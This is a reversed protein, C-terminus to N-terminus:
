LSALTKRDAKLVSKPLPAFDLSAGYAQGPGIAYEVFKTLEAKVTTNKPVICYTFTSIPYAIKFVKAPAVIHLENNAPVKVVTKAADEINKINPYEFKHDNNEVAAANLQHSLLYSAAVYGLSGNTEQLVSVVGSNGKAGVGAPFNVLTATNVKIAWEHSVDSLFNTFAYTDGSGEIRYIPTIKLNPMHEKPNLKAIAPSNWTTIKGLYIEALVPGSLRLNRVGEIHFGIGTATLGWPIQVCENCGAAQTSTLPADSAGFDVARASVQTIGTGSGVASYTVEEGTKSKFGPAWYGELLPAVLTSGAGTLPSAAAVATGGFLGAAVCSAAAAALLLPHAKRQM